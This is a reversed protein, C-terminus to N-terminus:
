RRRAPRPRRRGAGTAASGLRGGRLLLVLEVDDEDRGAVLLDLDDLLDPGERAEPRLSALSRTSPAGFGTSSFTDFSSASFAFAWSSAAPAVDLELLRRGGREPPPDSHTEPSAQLPPHGTTDEGGRPAWRTVRLRACRRPGAHRASHEPRATDAREHGATGTADRPAGAHGLARHNGARAAVRGTRRASRHEWSQLSTPEDDRGTLTHRERLKALDLVERVEDLDLRLRELPEELVADGLDERSMEGISSKVPWSFSSSVSWTNSGGFCESSSHRSRSM